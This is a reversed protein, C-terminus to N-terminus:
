LNAGAMALAIPRPLRGRGDYQRVAAEVKGQWLNRHSYHNWLSSFIFQTFLNTCVTVPSNAYMLM